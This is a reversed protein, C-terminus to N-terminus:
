HLPDIFIESPCIYDVSLRSFDREADALIRVVDGGSFLCTSFAISSGGCFPLPGCPRYSPSYGRREVRHWDIDSFFAHAQIQAIRLRDKPERNVIHDILEAADPDGVLQFVDPVPRVEASRKGSLHPEGTGEFMELVLMGYAWIDLAPGCLLENQKFAEPALYPETGAKPVMCTEISRSRPCQRSLGFDALCLHGSPSILINQFKLDSHVTHHTEHLAKLACLLEAAYLRTAQVSLTEGGDALRCLRAKMTEPYLRMVLYVNTEDQFAALLPTLFASNGRAQFGKLIEVERNITTATPVMTTWKMDRESLKRVRSAADLKNIVKIAVNQEPTAGPFLAHALMVHSTSGEGLRSRFTFQAGKYVLPAARETALADDADHADVYYYDDSFLESSCSTRSSTSSTSYEYGSATSESCADSIIYPDSKSHDMTDGCAVDPLADVSRTRYQRCLLKRDTDDIPMKSSATSTDTDLGDYPARPACVCECMRLVRNWLNGFFSESAVADQPALDVGDGDGHHLPLLPHYLATDRARPAWGGLFNVIHPYCM